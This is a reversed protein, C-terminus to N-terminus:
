RRLLDTLKTGLHLLACLHDNPKLPSAPFASLVAPATRSSTRSATGSLSRAIKCTLVSGCPVCNLNTRSRIFYIGQNPLQNSDNTTRSSSLNLLYPNRSMRKTTGSWHNPKKAKVSFNFLTLRKGPDCGNSLSDTDFESRSGEHTQCCPLPAQSRWSRELELTNFRTHLRYQSTAIALFM